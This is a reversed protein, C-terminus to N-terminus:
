RIRLVTTRYRRGEFDLVALYAAAAVDRGADNKGDWLVGVSGAMSADVDDLVRVLTGSLTFIRVEISGASPVTCNFTTQTTFPNPYNFFHIGGGPPVDGYQVADIGQVYGWGYDNDPRGPSNNQSRDATAQLAERIQYPGWDPHEELLLAVVGAVLPSSFSTGNAGSHFTSDGGAPYVTTLAVGRAVIDPKIRGDFTPGRSSFEVLTGDSITAGVAIVSDGDSPAAVYYLVPIQDPGPPPTPPDWGTNGASVVVIVGRAAAADAAITITATDGDMDRHSYWDYYSLSTNTVDVGRAEMWEIAAVWNDEEEPIEIPGSIETRALLLHAGYAPGVLTGPLYGAIVGWVQTGHSQSSTYASQNAISITDRAVFDYAALVMDDRLAIHTLRFGTDLIGIIVGEGSLGMEHLAPVQVSENQEWSNGYFTPGFQGTGVAGAGAGSATSVFEIGPGGEPEIRRGRALPKIRRVSHRDSLSVLDHPAVVGSVANLWRSTHRVRLGADMLENVYVPSVPLDSEVVDRITGRVFRRELARPSLHDRTDTLARRLEGGRLGRDELFVWVYLSDTSTSISRQLRLDIKSVQRAPLPTNLLLLAILTSASVAIM